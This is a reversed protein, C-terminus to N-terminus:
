AWSAPETAASPRCPATIQTIGALHLLSIASNRLTAMVKPGNGAYSTNADEAWTTDRLWQASEIGVPRPRHWLRRPPHARGPRRTPLRRGRAQSGSPASSSGAMATTWTRMTPARPGNHQIADYVARQLGPLGESNDDSDRDLGSDRTYQLLEQRAAAPRLMLRQTRNQSCFPLPPIGDLANLLPQRAVGSAM